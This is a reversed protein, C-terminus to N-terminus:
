SDADDVTENDVTQAVDAKPMGEFTPAAVRMRLYEDIKAAEEIESFGADWAAFGPWRKRAAPSYLSLPPPPQAKISTPAPIGRKDFYSPNAFV